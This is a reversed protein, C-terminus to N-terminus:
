PADPLKAVIWGMVVGDEIWGGFLHEACYAWWQTAGRRARAVGPAGCMTGYRPAGFRCRGGEQVRWVRKPRVVWAYGPQLQFHPDPHPPRPM